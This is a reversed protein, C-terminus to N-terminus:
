EKGNSNKKIKKKTQKRRRRPTVKKSYRGKETDSTRGPARKNSQNKRIRMRM